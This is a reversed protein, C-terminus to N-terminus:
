KRRAKKRKEKERRKLEMELEKTSYQRLINQRRVYEKYKQPPNHKKVRKLSDTDKLTFLEFAAVNKVTKDPMLVWWMTNLNHYVKGRCLYGNANRFYRIAGNYLINDDRDTHSYEDETTQGDIDSLDFWETQPFHESRIYYDILFDSGKYKSNQYEIIFGSEEFFHILKNKTWEFRKAILYPMKKYKEFDYFGGSPNEHNIDQYFEIDFKQSHYSAKFRLDGFGGAKHTMNLSPFNKKIEKDESVYFGISSLYHMCETFNAWHPNDTETLVTQSLPLDGKDITFKTDSIYVRTGKM